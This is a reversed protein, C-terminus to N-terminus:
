GVRSILCVTGQRDIRPLLIETLPVRGGEENRLIAGRTFGYPAVRKYM